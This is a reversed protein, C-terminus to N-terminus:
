GQWGAKRLGVLMHEHDQPRFSPPCSRVYAEFSRLSMDMATRLADSAEATRGLQGLAAALWRYALPHEPHHAIANRAAAVTAVYDREFYYSVAIQSRLHADRPDHPSLQLTALV